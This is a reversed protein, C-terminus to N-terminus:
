FKPPIVTKVAALPSWGRLWTEERPLKLEPQGQEGTWGEQPVAVRGERDGEARDGAAHALGQKQRIGKQGGHNGGPRVVSSRSRLGVYVAEHETSAVHCAERGSGHQPTAHPAGGNETGPASVTGPQGWQHLVPCCSAEGLWRWHARWAVSDKWQPAARPRPM